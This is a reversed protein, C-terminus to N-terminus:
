AFTIVAPSGDARKLQATRKLIYGPHRKVPHITLAAAMLLKRITSLKYTEKDSGMAQELLPFGFEPLNKKRGGGRPSKAMNLETYMQIQYQDPWRNPNKIYEIDGDALLVPARRRVDKGAAVRAKRNGSGEKSARKKGKAM